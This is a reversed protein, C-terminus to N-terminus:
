IIIGGGGGSDRDLRFPVSFGDILFQNTPFTYDLKSETIVLIDLKGSIFTKLADIKNRLSNINLQGIILRNANSIRINNLFASSESHQSCRETTEKVCMDTTTYPTISKYDNVLNPNHSVSNSTVLSNTNQSPMDLISINSNNKGFGGKDDDHGVNKNPITISNSFISDNVNTASVTSLDSAYLNESFLKELTM